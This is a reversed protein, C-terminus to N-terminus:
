FRLSFGGGGGGKLHFGEMLVEDNEGAVSDAVQGGLPAKPSHVRKVVVGGESKAPWSPFMSPDVPKPSEEFFSHNLAEHATIRKQPWYMLLKNLLALGSKPLKNGKFREHISNYPVDPLAIKKVLNFQTYGPWIKESPTGLDKFILELQNLESKGPFFPKMTVFEAFICGISWIDIPTSYKDTELLLEPARYWLTVVIPTYPKLPSGYERALGFDGVKLIGKHNLLLNSTKLDRHLIWNDHLHAIASLLQRLLTKVEGLLFPQKMSEMLSKLDHEVYEMVIYIKDMNSGVVIEKVGVINEHGSKLLTNIERLSTIPFGEKEKEMKLRKLAVIENTVKCRARYVVGYTGEEIRNMCQFDDVSRCGQFSPYYPIIETELLGEPTTLDTVDDKAPSECRNPTSKPTNRPTNRPSNDQSKFGSRRSGDNAEKSNQSDESLVDASKEKTNAEEESEPRTIQVKPLEDEGKILRRYGEDDVEPKLEEDSMEVEQVEIHSALKKVSSRERSNERSEKDRYEEDERIVDSRDRKRSKRDIFSRLDQTRDGPSRSKSKNPSQKYDDELPPRSRSGSDRYERSRHKSSYKSSQDYNYNSKRSEYENSRQYRVGQDDYRDGYTDGYRKSSRPRGHSPYRDNENRSRNTDDENGNRYENDDDRRGSYYDRSSHKSSRSRHGGSSVKKYEYSTSTVEGYRDPYTDVAPDGAAGRTRDRYKDKHKSYANDKHYNVDPIQGEEESSYSTSEPERNRSSMIPLFPCSDISPRRLLTQQRLDVFFITSPVPCAAM